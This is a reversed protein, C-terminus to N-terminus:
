RSRAADAGCPRPTGNSRALDPHDGRRYTVDTVGQEFCFIGIAPIAIPLWAVMLLLKLMRRRWILTIGSRAVFLPRILQHNRKGVWKRYGLDHVPM